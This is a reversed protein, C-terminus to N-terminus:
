NVDWAGAEEGANVSEWDKVASRFAADVERAKTRAANREKRFRRAITLARWLRIRLHAVERRRHRDCAYYAALLGVVGVWAAAHIRSKLM